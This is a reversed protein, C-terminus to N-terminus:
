ISLITGQLHGLLMYLPPNLCVKDVELIAKTQFWFELSNITQKILFFSEEKYSTHVTLLLAQTVFPPKQNSILDRNKIPRNLKETEEQILKPLIHTEPFRDMEGINDLKNGYM